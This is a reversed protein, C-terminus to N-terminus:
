GSRTRVGALWNAYLKIAMDRWPWEARAGAEDFPFAQLLAPDREGDIVRQHLSQLVTWDEPAVCHAPLCPREEREGYLYRKLDRRYERLLGSPGYEPHGQVLVVSCAGVTKTIVSWGTTVSTMVVEYGTRQVQEVAVTNWRSHAVAVPSTLGDVLPHAAVTQQSFVGTCKMALRTRRLGDFVALAAHAALCSLLMSGVQESAWCLLQQLQTWYPEDELRLALPESGTVILVDPPQKWIGALPFYRSDIVSATTSGRPIGEMSYLRVDMQDDGSGADLLDLYQRETAIFAGDPMNNVLGCVWRCPSGTAKAGREPGPQVLRLGM